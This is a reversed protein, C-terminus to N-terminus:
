YIWGMMKEHRRCNPNRCWGWLDALHEDYKVRDRIRFGAWLTQLGSVVMDCIYRDLLCKKAM